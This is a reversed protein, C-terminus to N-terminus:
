QFCSPGVFCYSRFLVLHRFPNKLYRRKWTSGAHTVDLILYCCIASVCKASSDLPASPNNEYNLRFMQSHRVIKKEQAFPQKPGLRVQSSNVACCRPNPHNKGLLPIQLSTIPMTESVSDQFVTLSLLM